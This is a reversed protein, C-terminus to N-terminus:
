LKFFYIISRNYTFHKLFYYDYSECFLVAVFSGEEHVLRDLIKANVEEIRDPNDM